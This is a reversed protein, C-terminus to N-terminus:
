FILIYSRHSLVTAKYKDEDMKVVAKYFPVSLHPLIEQHNSSSIFTNQLYSPFYYNYILPCLRIAQGCDRKWEKGERQRGEPWFQWSGRDVLQPYPGIVQKLCHFCASTVPTSMSLTSMTSPKCAQRQGESQSSRAGIPVAGPCHASLHIRCSDFAFSKPFGLQAKFWAWCLWPGGM